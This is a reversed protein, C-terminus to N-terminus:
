RGVTITINKKHGQSLRSRTMNLAFFEICSISCEDISTTYKEMSAAM